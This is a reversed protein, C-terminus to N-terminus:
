FLHDDLEKFQFDLYSAYLRVFFEPVFSMRQCIVIGEEFSCPYRLLSETACHVCPAM